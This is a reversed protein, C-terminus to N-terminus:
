SPTTLRRPRGSAVFLHPLRLRTLTAAFGERETRNDSWGSGVSFERGATRHTTTSTLRHTATAHLKQTAFVSLVASLQVCSIFTVLQANM